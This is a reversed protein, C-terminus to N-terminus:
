AVLNHAYVTATCDLRNVEVVYDMMGRQWHQAGDMLAHFIIDVAKIPPNLTDVYAKAKDYEDGKFSLDFVRTNSM